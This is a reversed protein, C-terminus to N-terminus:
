GGHRRRDLGSLNSRIPLTTWGLARPLPPLAADRRRFPRRSTARVLPRDLEVVGEMKVGFLKPNAGLPVPRPLRASAGGYPDRAPERSLSEIARQVTSINAKSRTAHLEPDVAGSPDAPPAPPPPEPLSPVPALELPPTDLAPFVDSPPPAVPPSALTGSEPATFSEDVWSSAACAASADEPASEPEPPCSADGASSACAGSEDLTSAIHTAELAAQM